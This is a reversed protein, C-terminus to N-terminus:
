GNILGELAQKLQPNDDVGLDLAKQAFKKAKEMDKAFRQNWFAAPVYLEKAIEKSQIGLADLAEISALAETVKEVANVQALVLKEYIGKENKPDLATVSSALEADLKGARLLADIAALKLGKSNDKDLEFAARALKEFVEAGITEGTAKALLEIAERVIAIQAEGKAAAFKTELEKATALSAKGAVAIENLHEVYKAPGGQQYGTRGFVEGDPTMLLITPFGQVGYKQSLEENRKPNPVKAKIEDAQPFDLAVLLYGEGIPKLFEEHDFVEKHLKICWGCWDSGTFDVLLNKKAERAAKAAEDFDPYWTAHAADQAALPAAM